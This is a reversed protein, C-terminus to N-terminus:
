APEEYTEKMHVTYAISKSPQKRGNRLVAKLSYKTPDVHLRREDTKHDQGVAALVKDTDEYYVLDGASAFNQAFYKLSYRFISSERCWTGGAECDHDWFNM